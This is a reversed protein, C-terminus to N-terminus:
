QQQEVAEFWVVRVLCAKTKPKLSMECTFWKGM